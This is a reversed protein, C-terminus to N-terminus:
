GGLKIPGFLRLAQPILSKWVESLGLDTFTLRVGILFSIYSAGILEPDGTSLEHNEQGKEIFPVLDKLMRAFYQDLRELLNPFKAPQGLVQQILQLYDRHEAMFMIQEEIIGELQETIPKENIEHRTFVSDFDMLPEIIAAEFLAEKNEFYTFVTGFSVGANKAIDSVTTSTFGNQAFLRIASTLIQNRKEQQKPSLRKKNM